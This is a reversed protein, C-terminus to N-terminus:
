LELGKDVGYQTIKLSTPSCVIKWGYPLIFVDGSGTGTNIKNLENRLRNLKEYVDSLAADIRVDPVTKRTFPM